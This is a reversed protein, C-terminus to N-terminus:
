LMIVRVAVCIYDDHRVYQVLIMVIERSRHNRPNGSARGFNPMPFSTWNPKPNLPEIVDKPKKSRGILPMANEALRLSRVHYNFIAM